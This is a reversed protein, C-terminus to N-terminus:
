EDGSHHHPPTSHQTACRFGLRLSGQRTRLNGIRLRYETFVVDRDLKTDRARYVEGMALRTLWNELDCRARKPSHLM